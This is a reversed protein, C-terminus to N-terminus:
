RWKWKGVFFWRILTSLLSNYNRLSGGYNGLTEFTESLAFFFSTQQEENMIPARISEFTNLALDIYYNVKELSDGAVDDSVSPNKPDAASLKHISNALNSFGRSESIKSKSATQTMIDSMKTLSLQIANNGQEKM